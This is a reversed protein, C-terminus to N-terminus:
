HLSSCCAIKLIQFPHHSPATRTQLGFLAAKLHKEHLDWSQTEWICPAAKGCSRPRKFHSACPPHFLENTGLPGVPFSVDGPERSVSFFWGKKKKKLFSQWVM